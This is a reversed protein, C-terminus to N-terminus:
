GLLFILMLCYVFKFLCLGFRIEIGVFLVVVLRMGGIYDFYFLIDLNILKRESWVEYFFVRNFFLFYVKNLVM